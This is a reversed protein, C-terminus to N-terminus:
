ADRRGLWRYAFELVQAVVLSGILVNFLWDWPRGDGALQWKGVLAAVLATALFGVKAIHLSRDRASGSEVGWIM